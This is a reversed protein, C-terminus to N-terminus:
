LSAFTRDRLAIDRVFGRIRHAAVLMPTAAHEFSATMNLAQHFTAGPYRFSDSCKIAAGASMFNPVQAGRNSNFHVQDACHQYYPTQLM